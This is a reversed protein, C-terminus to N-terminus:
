DDINVEWNILAKYVKDDVRGKWKEAVEKIRAEKAEKYVLFADLPNDFYGLRKPKRTVSGDRIQAIYKKDRKCYIVGVPNDGRRHKNDLILKNIEQPVFCCTEPSYLRSGRVLIDKDLHYHRGMGDKSNFNKQSNSWQAFLQFNCWLPHVEVDKYSPNDELREVRSLMADWLKYERKNSSSYVGSGIVGVGCVSPKMPNSVSGSKLNSMSTKVVFTFEKFKVFVDSAGRYDVVTCRGCSNTEFEKGLLLLRTKEVRSLRVM